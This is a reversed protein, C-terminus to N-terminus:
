PKKNKPLYAVVEYKIPCDVDREDKPIYHIKMINSIKLNNDAWSIFISEALTILDHIAVEFGMRISSKDTEIGKVERWWCPEEVKKDQCLEFNSIKFFGSFGGPHEIANRMSIYSKLNTEAEKLFATKPDNIGFKKEAFKILSTSSKKNEYFESAEKFDTKYLVNFVNILNRVFNKYEYLFNHCEQELKPIFPLWDKRGEEMLSNYKQSLEKFINIYREKIEWCHILQPTLSNIYINQIEEKDGPNINCHELIKCIQLSLRTVIYNQTGYNLIEKFVFTM